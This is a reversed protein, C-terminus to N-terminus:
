PSQLQLRYDYDMQLLGNRLEGTMLLSDARFVTGFKGRLIRVTDCPSGTIGTVIFEASDAGFGIVRGSANCFNGKNTILDYSFSEGTIGVSVTDIGNGGVFGPTKDWHLEGTYTQKVKESSTPDDKCGSLLFLLATFLLAKSGVAVRNM